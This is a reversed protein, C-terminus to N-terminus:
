VRNGQSQEGGRGIGKPVVWVSAHRNKSLAAENEYWKAMFREAEELVGRYWKGRKKAAITWM